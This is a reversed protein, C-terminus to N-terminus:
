PDGVQHYHLLSNVLLTKINNHVMEHCRFIDAQLLLQWGKKLLLLIQLLLLLLMLILLLWQKQLLLLLIDSRSDDRYLTCISRYGCGSQTGTCSDRCRCRCWDLFRSTTIVDATQCIHHYVGAVDLSHSLLLYFFFFFFFFFSSSM